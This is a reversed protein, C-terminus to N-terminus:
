RGWQSKGTKTSIVGRLMQHAEWARKPSTVKQMNKELDVVLPTTSTAISPVQQATVAQTGKAITM